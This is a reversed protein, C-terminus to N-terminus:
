VDLLETKKNTNSHKHINLYYSERTCLYIYYSRLKSQDGGTVGHHKVDRRRGELKETKANTRRSYNHFSHM